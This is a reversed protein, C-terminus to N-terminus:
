EEIEDEADTMEEYKKLKKRYIVIRYIGFFIFVVGM